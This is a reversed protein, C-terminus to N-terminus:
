IRTGNYITPNIRFIGSSLWSRTAAKEIWQVSMQSWFDSPVKRLMKMKFELINSSPSLSMECLAIWSKHVVARDARTELNQSRCLMQCVNINAAIFKTRHSHDKSWTQISEQTFLRREETKDHCSLNKIAYQM